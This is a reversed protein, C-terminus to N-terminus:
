ARRIIWLNKGQSVGRPWVLAGGESQELDSHRGQKHEKRENSRGDPRGANGTYTESWGKRNTERASRFGGGHINLGGRIGSLNSRGEGKM